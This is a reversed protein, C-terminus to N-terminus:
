EVAHLADQALALNVTFNRRDAPRDGGGAFPGVVGRYRLSWNHAMNAFLTADGTRGEPAFEVMAGGKRMFAANTLGAGLPGAIHSARAFLAMQESFPLDEPFIKIYGLAQATEFIEDENGLHRSSSKQRSVFLKIAAGAAPKPLSRAMRVAHENFTRINVLGRAPVLLNQYRVRSDRSQEVMQRNAVGLTNLIERMWPRLPPVVFLLDPRLLGADELAQVRACAELLWHFYNNNTQIGLVAFTGERQHTWDLEHTYLEKEKHLFGADAVAGLARFSDTLIGGRQDAVIFNGFVDANQLGVVFAPGAFTQGQEVYRLDRERAEDAVGDSVTLPEDLWRQEWKSPAGTQVHWDGDGGNRGPYDGRRVFHFDQM